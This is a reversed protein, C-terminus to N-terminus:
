CTSGAKTQSCGALDGVAAEHHYTQLAESILAATENRKAAQEAAQIEQLQILYAALRAEDRATIGADRMARTLNLFESIMNTVMLETGQEGIPTGVASRVLRQDTLLSFFVVGTHHKWLLSSTSHHLIM